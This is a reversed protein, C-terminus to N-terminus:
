LKRQIFTFLVAGLFYMLIDLWDATYWGPRGHYTPLYWEFYISVFITQLIVFSIPILLSNDRRILRLFILAFLCMAPVFLLDTLYHKIFISESMPRYWRVLFYFLMIGAFIIHPRYRAMQLHQWGLSSDLSQSSFLHSQTCFGSRLAFWFSDTIKGPTLM